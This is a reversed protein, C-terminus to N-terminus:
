VVQCAHHQDVFLVLSDDQIATLAVVSWSIMTTLHRIERYGADDSVLHRALNLSKEARFRPEIDAEQCHLMSAWIGM